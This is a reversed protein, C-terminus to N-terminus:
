PLLAARPGWLVAVGGTLGFIRELDVPVLIDRSIVSAKFGPAYEEICDFVRDAYMDRDVQEWARGGALLYPTYQTFLLVVHKGPPALTTDLVSPICMEILPRKSPIGQYADRFAVDLCEMDWANLHITCSHHLEPVNEASNPFVKFSPLKDVAVNIKTVPSSYDIQSVARVFDRPLASQPTLQLYTVHATANSLIIKSKIEEGSTLAVGVACGCDDVMVQQVESNTFLSAGHEMASAAISDSLAGMGGQVYAWAGRMGTMNGMVHHLLVYGSGSAYPSTNSGVVSDTALVAKLPESEFYRNLIKASPATLLEMFSPIDKGLSQATRFLPRLGKLAQLTKRPSRQFLGPIDPPPSDLLPDMATVFREMTQVYEPYMQADSLSFQAISKQNEQMDSGLLLYHGAQTGDLLPCFSVCPRPLLTLGHRELQLEEYIQPRLLSLLYSARSFKFGPVIEETVSAGGLLNRRELVATRVGARSLYAAAVLGNHGGGIVVAEYEPQLKAGALGAVSRRQDCVKARAFRTRTVGQATLIKTCLRRM